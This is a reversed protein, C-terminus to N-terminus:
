QGKAIMEADMRHRKLRYLWGWFGAVAFSWWAAYPLLPLVARHTIGLQQRVACQDAPHAKAFAAMERIQPWYLVREDKSYTYYNLWVEIIYLICVADSVTIQPWLKRADECCKRYTRQADIVKKLTSTHTSSKENQLYHYKAEPLCLIKQARKLIAYSVELDEATSLDESFKRERFLERRWLKGWQATPIDWKMLNEIVPMGELLEEKPHGKLVQGSAYELYHGCSVIDVGYEEAKELLYEVIDPEIWDDPDVWMLWECDGTNELGANRASSLGGNAKHIVKIRNDKEAYEDCIKGCNDPSGDDVLIIELNRYTQGVISDLCKRLYPEVNYISVHVSVVPKDM